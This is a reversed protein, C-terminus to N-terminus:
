SCVLPDLYYWCQTLPDTDAAQRKAQASEDEFRSRKPSRFVNPAALEGSSRRADAKWAFSLRDGLRPGGGTIASDNTDKDELGNLPKETKEDESKDGPDPVNGDDSMYANGLMLPDEADREASLDKPVHAENEQTEVDNDQLPDERLELQQSDSPLPPSSPQQGLAPTKEQSGKYSMAYM